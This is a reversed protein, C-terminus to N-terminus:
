TTNSNSKTCTLRARSKLAPVIIACGVGTASRRNLEDILSLRREAVSIAVYGSGRSQHDKLILRAWRRGRTRAPLRTALFRGALVRARRKPVVPRMQNEFVMLAPSPEIAALAAPADMFKWM